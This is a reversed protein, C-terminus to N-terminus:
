SVKKIKKRGRHVIYGYFTYVLFIGVFGSVWELGGAGFGYSHLGAGLVFNVGYWAMIILTFAVIAGALMGFNKVWGALRGHLLALYGMIAIFAWTEKPDWGWFRGWSYDAWVGGLITGAILLVLGIQMCRYVAQVMSRVRPSNEHDGALIFGIGIAGLAFALFLPAYSLTITLVHILLWMNSRLVPELPQLSPDLIVPALDSIILCLSGVLAGSMLLLRNKRVAELVMATLVAGFAVWVVTEYMNSVPPRGTIMVRLYFGYIHFGVGLLGSLWAMRYFFKWSVFRAVLAFIACILYLIWGYQFPHVENFHVERLIERETPYLSPNQARAANVFSLFTKEFDEAATVGDAQEGDSLQGPVLSKIFGESLKLFKAQLDGELEAITLWTAGEQPPVVPLAGVKFRHFTFMQSELRQVAQFYPTLKANNQRMEALERFVLDVRPNARMEEYSFFKESGPLDLAEKLGRHDLKFIKAAEWETPILLWTMVIRYAPIKEDRFKFSERGNILQLSERAFTDFPKVRGGDQIPLNKLSETSAQAAWALPLTCLILLVRQFFLKM